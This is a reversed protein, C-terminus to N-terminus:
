MRNNAAQVSCLIVGCQAQLVIAGEVQNVVHWLEGLVHGLRDFRLLPSGRQVRRTIKDRANNFSVKDTAAKWCLTSGCEGEIHGHPAQVLCINTSYQTIAVIM